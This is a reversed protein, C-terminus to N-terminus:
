AGRILPPPFAIALVFRERGGAVRLLPHVAVQPGAMGAGIIVLSPVAGEYTPHVAFRPAGATGAMFSIVILNRDGWREVLFGAPISMVGYAIFFCFPLVAAMAYSVHFDSIIDPVLPGLINTLFSIVFFIAFILAVIYRNRKM